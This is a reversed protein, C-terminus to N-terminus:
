AAVTSAPPVAKPHFVRLAVVGLVIFILLVVSQAILFPPESQTPALANLTPVKLFAQVVGVFVNLYLAAFASAVYLRRWFGALRFFYLAVIAVALIVLSLGGVVHSPLIKDAPFFFGTVSTLLTTILFLATWGNLRKSGLMGILTMAGAFIGVLSLVVHFLTFAPTSLGLIM